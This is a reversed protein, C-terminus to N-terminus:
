STRPIRGSTEPTSFPKSGASLLSEDGFLGREVLKVRGLRGRWPWWQRDDTRIVKAARGACLAEELEGLLESAREVGELAGPDGRGSEGIQGGGPERRGVETFLVAREHEGRGGAAGRLVEVLSDRREDAPGGVLPDEHPVRFGGHGTQLADASERDRAYRV